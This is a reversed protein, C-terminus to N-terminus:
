RSEDRKSNKTGTYVCLNTLGFLQRRWGLHYPATVEGGDDAGIVTLSCDDCSFPSNYAGGRVRCRLIRPILTEPVCASVLFAIRVTFISRAMEM